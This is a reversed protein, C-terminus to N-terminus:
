PRTPAAESKGRNPPCCRLSYQRTCHMKNRHKFDVPYSTICHPYSGIATHIQNQTSHNQGVPLSQLPTRLRHKFNPYSSPCLYYGPAGPETVCGKRKGRKEKEKRGEKKHTKRKPSLSVTHGLSAKGKFESEQKRPRQTSSNCTHGAM